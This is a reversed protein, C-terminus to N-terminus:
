CSARDRLEGAEERDRDRYLPLISPLGPGAPVNFRISSRKGKREREEEREREKAQRSGTLYIIDLEISVSIVKERELYEAERTLFVALDRFKLM